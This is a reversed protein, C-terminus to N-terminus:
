GQVFAPRPVLRTEAGRAPPPQPMAQAVPSTIRPAAYKRPSSMMPPLPPLEFIVAPTDVERLIMPPRTPSLPQTESTGSRALNAFVAIQQDLEELRPPKTFYDEAGSKIAKVALKLDNHGTLVLFKALCGNDRAKRMVALGDDNGLSIDLLMVDPRGDVMLTLGESANSAHSVLHGKARLFDAMMRALPQYDELILISAM